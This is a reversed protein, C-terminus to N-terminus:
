FKIAIVVRAPPFIWPSFRPGSTIKTGSAALITAYHGVHAIDLIGVRGGPKLVRVIERIATDRDSESSLNYIALSSVIMALATVLLSASISAAASRLGGGLSPVLAILTLVIGITGM